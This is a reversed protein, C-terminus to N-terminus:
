SCRDQLRACPCGRCLGPNEHEGTIGHLPVHSAQLHPDSSRGHQLRYMVTGVGWPKYVAHLIHAWCSVLVALTAQSVAILMVRFRMDHFADNAGSSISIVTCYRFHHGAKSSSSSPRYFCSECCSKWRGGGAAGTM